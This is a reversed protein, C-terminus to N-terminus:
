RIPHFLHHNVLTKRGLAPYARILDEFGERQPPQNSIVTLLKAKFSGAYRFTVWFPGEDPFDMAPKRAFFLLSRRKGVLRQSIRFGAPDMPDLPHWVEIILLEAEIAERPLTAFGHIPWAKVNAGMCNEILCRWHDCATPSSAIINISYVSGMPEVSNSIHEDNTLAV